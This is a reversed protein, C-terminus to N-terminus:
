IRSISTCISLIENCILLFWQLHLHASYLHVNSTHPNKTTWKKTLTGIKDLIINLSTKWFMNLSKEFFNIVKVVEQGVVGGVIACVPSLTATCHRHTFGCKNYICTGLNLVSSHVEQKVTQLQSHPYIQLTFRAQKYHAVLIGPTLSWGGQFIKM